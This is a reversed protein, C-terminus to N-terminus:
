SKAFTEDAFARWISVTDRPLVLAVELQLSSVLSATLGTHLHWLMLSRAHSSMMIRPQTGRETLFPLWILSGRLLEEM